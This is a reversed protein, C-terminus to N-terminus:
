VSWELDKVILLESYGIRKLEELLDGYKDESKRAEKTDEEILEKSAYGHQGLHMYTLVEETLTLSEPFVAIIDGKQVGTTIKRLMVKVPLGRDPSPEQETKEEPFPLRAEYIKHMDEDHIDCANINIGCVAWMDGNWYAVEPSENFITWYYGRSRKM